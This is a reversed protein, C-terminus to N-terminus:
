SQILLSHQSFFVLSYVWRDARLKDNALSNHSLDLSQLSTLNGLVYKRVDNIINHSVNLKKLYRTGSLIGDTLVPM